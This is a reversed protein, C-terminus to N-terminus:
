CRRPYNTLFALGVGTLPRQIFENWALYWAPGRENLGVMLRNKLAPSLEVLYNLIFVSVFLLLFLVATRRLQRSRKRASLVYLLGMIIITAGIGARSFTLLLAIVQVGFLLIFKFRSLRNAVVTGCNNLTIMLWSALSNPNGTLSIFDTVITFCWYAITTVTLWWNEYSADALSPLLPQEM